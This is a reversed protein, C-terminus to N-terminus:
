YNGNEERNGDIRYYILYAGVYAGLVRLRGFFIGILCRLLLRRLALLWAIVIIAIYAGIEKLIAKKKKSKETEIQKEIDDAAKVKADEEELMQNLENLTM